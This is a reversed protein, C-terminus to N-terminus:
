KIFILRLQFAHDKVNPRPAQRRERRQYEAVFRFQERVWLNLYTTVGYVVNRNKNRAM